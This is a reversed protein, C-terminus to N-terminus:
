AVREARYRHAARQNGAIEALEALTHEQMGGDPTDILAARTATYDRIRGEAEGPAAMSLNLPALAAWGALDTPFSREIVLRVAADVTSVYATAPPDILLFAANSGIDAGEGTIAALHGRHSAAVSASSVTQLLDRHQSLQEDSEVGTLSHPATALLESLRPLIQASAKATLQEAIVTAHERATYAVTRELRDRLENAIAHRAQWATHQAAHKSIWRGLDKAAPLDTPVLPQPEDALASIKRLAATQELYDAPMAFGYLSAIAAVDDGQRLAAILTPDTTM